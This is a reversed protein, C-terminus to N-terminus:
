RVNLLDLQWVSLSYYYRLHENPIDDYPFVLFLPGQSRAPIPRGDMRLAVIPDYDTVEDIPFSMEFDNVAVATIWTGDMGAAALVDRLLPGQFSVKRLYWPTTVTKTVQPLEKLVRMDFQAQRGGGQVTLVVKGTRTLQEPPESGPASLSMVMAVAAAGLLFCFVTMAVFRRMPKARTSM